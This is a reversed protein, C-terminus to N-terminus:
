YLFEFAIVLGPQFVHRGGPLHVTGLFLLFTFTSGARSPNLDTTAGITRQPM